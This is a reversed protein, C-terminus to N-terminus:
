PNAAVRNGSRYVEAQLDAWVDVAGPRTYLQPSATDQTLKFVRYLWYSDSHEKSTSLENSTIFFPTRIGLRTTKVEIWKEKGHKDYSRIDYGASPGQTQAVHEVQKALHTLGSDHLAKREHELVLAEGAAGVAHNMAEILLYNKNIKQPVLYRAKQEAINFVPPKTLRLVQASAAVKIAPTIDTAWQYMASELQRGQASDLYERVVGRLSQQYHAGGRPTYGMLHPQGLQVMVASINMHKYEISKKSRQVLKQLSERHATKSYKEKSLEKLLMAFYDAVIAENEQQSWPEGAM